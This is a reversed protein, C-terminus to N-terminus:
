SPENPIHKSILEKLTEKKITKSIYDACGLMIGHMKDFASDRSTFCVIPIDKLENNSKIIEIAEFGTLYPMEYDMFILDPKLKVTQIITELGDKASYIEYYNDEDSKITREVLQYVMNSDDAILIKKM